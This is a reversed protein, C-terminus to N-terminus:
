FDLLPLISYPFWKIHALSNSLIYWRADLEDLNERLEMLGTLTQRFLEPAVPKTQDLKQEIEALVGQELPANAQHWKLLVKQSLVEYVAGAKHFYNSQTVLSVLPATVGSMTLSLSIHYAFLWWVLSSALLLRTEPCQDERNEEAFSTGSM